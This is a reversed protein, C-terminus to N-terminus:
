WELNAWSPQIIDGSSALGNSSHYLWRKFDMTGGVVFKPGSGGWLDEDLDPGLSHYYWSRVKRGGYNSRDLPGGEPGFAAYDYNTSLDGYKSKEGRFPDVPMSGMYAIPTTLVALESMPNAGQHGFASGNDMEYMQTASKLAKMDSTCRALKARIQANLFNPVAIAALIGIIAVVILLEILTFAYHLRSM